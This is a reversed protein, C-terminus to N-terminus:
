RRFVRQRRRRDRPFSRRRGDRDREKRVATATRKTRENARRRKGADTPMRMEDEASKAVADEEEKARRTREEWSLTLTRKGADTPTRTEDEASKAVADEEEKARRTREEWNLAPIVADPVICDVGSLGFPARM